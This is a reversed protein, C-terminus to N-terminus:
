ANARESEWDFAVVKGGDERLRDFSREGICDKIGNLDLNSILVTPLLDQYRNDIIESLLMKETDSGFQIGIEDIILLHTKSHKSILQDESFQSKKNWTDKLNRILEPLKIIHCGINKNICENIMAAALHTKGTGVKGAMILCAGKGSIVEDVYNKTKELASRKGQTDAIFSGFSCQMHRKGLGARIRSKQMSELKEAELSANSEEENCTPCDDFVMFGDGIIKPIFKAEYAGHKECTLVESSLPKSQVLKM